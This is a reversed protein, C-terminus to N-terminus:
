IGVYKQGFLKDVFLKMNKDVVASFVMSCRPVDFRIGYILGVQCCKAM